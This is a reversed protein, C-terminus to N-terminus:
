ARTNTLVEVARLGLRSKGDIPPDQHLGRTLFPGRTFSVGLLGWTWLGAAVWCGLVRFGLGHFVVQLNM